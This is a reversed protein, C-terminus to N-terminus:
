HENHNAERIARSVEWRWDSIAFACKEAVQAAPIGHVETLVRAAALKGKSYIAAADFEGRSTRIFEQVVCVRLSQLLRQIEANGTYTRELQTHPMMSKALDELKDALEEPLQAALKRVSAGNANDLIAAREEHKIGAANRAVTAADMYAWAQKIM